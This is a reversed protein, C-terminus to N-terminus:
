LAPSAYIWFPSPTTDTIPLKVAEESDLNPPTVVTGQVITKSMQSCIAFVRRGM